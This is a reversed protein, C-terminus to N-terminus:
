AHLPKKGAKGAPGLQLDQRIALFAILDALSVVGVLKGDEAVMLKRNNSKTMRDFVEETKMTPRITNTEDWGAYIDGVRTQQWNDRDINQIMAADVYGLLQEGDLVPVFSVNHRLMIEEVMAQVTDNADVVWPERTMLGSAVHNKLTQRILLDRYSAKSAGLIFLGLLVQWLGVVLHTSVFAFVGMAILLIGFLNGVVSAVRTASVVDDRARWLISRLIRGGDLPFAPVLNFAALVLNVYGLYTCVSHVVGEGFLTRAFGAAFLFLGGLVVSMVPGALAIWFESKANEPDRELEAVGGFIFLTISGVHLNFRRAMLSHALEHLVLSAFLGIMAVTSVAILGWRDLEPLYQPFYSTALSWVVLAAIVFWSTDIRIKFGFVEFLDSTNQFM